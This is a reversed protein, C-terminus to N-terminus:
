DQLAGILPEAQAPPGEIRESVDDAEPPLHHLVLDTIIVESIARMELVGNIREQLQRKLDGLAPDDFDESHARRLLEEVGQQVRRRRATLRSRASLDVEDLLAVHLCFEAGEIPPRQGNVCCHYEGLSVEPSISMGTGGNHPQLRYRWLIGANSLVSCALIVALWKRGPVWRLLAAGNQSHDGADEGPANKQPTAQPPRRAQQDPM